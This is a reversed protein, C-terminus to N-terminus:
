NRDFQCFSALMALLGVESYGCLFCLQKRLLFTEVEINRIARNVVALILFDGLHGGVPSHVFFLPHVCLLLRQM